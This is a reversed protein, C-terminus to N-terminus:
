SKGCGSECYFQPLLRPKPPNTPDTTTRREKMPADLPTNQRYVRQLLFYTTLGIMMLFVLSEVRKPSHLFVPRVALPGKLPHNAIHAPFADLSRGFRDDNMKEVPLNWFIDAGSAEAWEPINSLAIPSYLRAAVLLNLITGHDFEQQNGYCTFAIM